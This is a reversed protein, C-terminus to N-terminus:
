PIVVRLYAHWAALRRGPGAQAPMWPRRRPPRGSRLRSRRMFNEDFHWPRVKGHGSWGPRIAAEWLKRTLRVSPCTAPNPLLGCIFHRELHDLLRPSGPPRLAPLVDAPVEVHALLAALRLPWYCCTRARASRAFDVFADWDIRGTAVIAELDRFARWTGGRMMHSWSFHLCVHMLQHPLTPVLVPVGDMSIEQAQERVRAATLGFPHDRTFLRRHVEVALGSGHADELPPLHHHDAYFESTVDVQEERWGNARLLEQATWALEDPLLLDVDGMPREAFSGYATQALAAGKLLVIPLDAERLLRITEKLRQELYLQSFEAIMSQRRLRDRIAPALELDPIASLRRAFVASAKELNALTLAREWNLPEDCLARLEPTTGAGGATLLM